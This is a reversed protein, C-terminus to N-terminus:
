NERVEATVKVDGAKEFKLTIDIKEGAKLERTLDILMIHYSGPKLEVSGGAPIELRDMKQMGMMSGGTGMGGGSAMPSEAGMGTSEMPAVSEIAVTEHVEVAKAIDSSGGLLFDAASAKNEIVMYAAGAGAVMPSTRAWPESIKIDGAAGSCAAVLLAVLAIPALRALVRGSPTPTHM